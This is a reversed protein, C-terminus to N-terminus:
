TKLFLMYNQYFSIEKQKKEILTLLIFYVM